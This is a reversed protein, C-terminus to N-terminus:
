FNIMGLFRQKATLLFLHIWFPRFMTGSLPSVPPPSANPSSTSHPSPLCASRWTSPWASPLLSLLLVPLGMLINDKLLQLAQVANKLGFAMLLFEFLSFPAAIAIKQNDAEAVSIQHYAKIL